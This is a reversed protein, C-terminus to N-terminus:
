RRKIWDGLPEKAAEGELNAIRGRVLVREVRGCIERGAFPTYRGKSFLDEAQIRWRARPDLVVIDADAGVALRGKRPSLGYLEAARKGTVALFRELSLRGKVYGEEWILPLFTQLGPIGAYADFFDPTEKEEPYHCSAHDTAVFDLVGDRLGQWLMEQDWQTRVPPTTKMRAGWRAFDQETLLLYQPCTEASVPLGKAKAEAILGVSIGSSLHVIHLHAGTEQTLQLASAVAVWEAVAPRSNLYDRWDIGGSQRVGRLSEEILDRDEAHFAVPLGLQAAKAMVTRMQGTSVSPYTEMGSIGYVKFGVVGLLALATMTESYSGDQVEEGTVGGWFAYDVRAKSRVAEWKAMLGQPTRCNPLSTEPMDIVTTVGGFAASATGSTFDERWTFGPDDLHVHPDIAGPLLLRGTLNWTEDVPVAALDGMALIRGEGILLDSEQWRGDLPLKAKTLKLTHIAGM